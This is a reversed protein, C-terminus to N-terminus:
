LDLGAHLQQETVEVTASTDEKYLMFCEITNEVSVTAATNIRVNGGLFLSTDYSMGDLVAAVGTIDKLKYIFSDSLVIAPININHIDSFIIKLPNTSTAISDLTIYYDSLGKTLVKYFAAVDQEDGLIGLSAAGDITSEAVISINNETDIYESAETIVAKNISSLSSASATNPILIGYKTFPIRSSPVYYAAIPANWLNPYVTIDKAIISSPSIIDGVKIALGYEAPVSSITGNFAYERDGEYWIRTVAGKTTAPEVGVVKQLTQTLISVTVENTLMNYVTNTKNVANPVRGFRSAYGFSGKSGKIYFCYSRALGNETNTIIESFGYASPHKFFVLTKEDIQLYDIDKILVVKNFAMDISIFLCEKIATPLQVVYHGSNDPQNVMFVDTNLFSNYDVKKTVPTICNDDVSLKYLGSQAIVPCEKENLIDTAKTINNNIEDLTLTNANIVGEVFNQDNFFDTWFDGLVSYVISKNTGETFIFSM